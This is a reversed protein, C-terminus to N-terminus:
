RGVDSMDLRTWLSPDALVDRWARCVCAARGRVDVLLELFIRHAVPLPLSALTAADPGIRRAVAGVRRGSM